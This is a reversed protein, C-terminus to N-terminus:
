KSSMSRLAKKHIKKLYEIIVFSGVWVGFIELCVFIYGGFRAPSTNHIFTPSIYIRQTISLHLYKFFSIIDLMGMMNGQVRFVEIIYNVYYYLFYTFLAISPMAQFTLRGIPKKTMKAAILSGGTALMGIIAAGYPIFGANLTMLDFRWWKIVLINLATIVFCSILTSSIVLMDNSQIKEREKM